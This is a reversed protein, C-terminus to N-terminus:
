ISKKNSWVFPCKLLYGWKNIAKNNEEKAMRNLFELVIEM